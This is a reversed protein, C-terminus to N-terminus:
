FEIAVRARPRHQACFYPDSKNPIHVIRYRQNQLSAAKASRHILARLYNLARSLMDILEKQPSVMANIPGVHNRDRQNM